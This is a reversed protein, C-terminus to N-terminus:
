RMVGTKVMMTEIRETQPFRFRIKWIYPGCGVKRGIKDRMNWVLYSFRGKSEDSAREHNELEGHYGFSQMFRTVYSGSQDFIFVDAVYPSTAAVRVAALTDPLPIAVGPDTGHPASNPNSVVLIEGDTWGVPPIWYLQGDYGDGAIAPYPTLSHVLVSGNSGELVVGGVGPANGSSDVYAVSSDLRVCNGVLPSNGGIVLTWELGNASVTPQAQVDLPWDEGEACSSSVRFLKKWEGRPASTELNLPESLRLRLTDPIVRQSELEAGDPVVGPSKVAKVVVAGVGDKLPVRQGAFHADNPLLVYPSAGTDPATLGYPFPEALDAEIWTSDAMFRVDGKPVIRSNAPLVNNWYVSDLGSPLASPKRALQLRVRDARGDRDHDLIQAALAPVFAGRFVVSDRVSASKEGPLFLRVSARSYEQTPDIRSQLFRDSRSVSASVFDFSTSAFFENSYPATEITAVKLTDGTDARLVVWVTDIHDLTPSVTHVRVGFAASTVQSVSDLELSDRLNVFRYAFPVQDAFAVSDRVQLGTVPDSYRAYLLDAPACAMRGDNSYAVREGKPFFQELRYRGEAVEVMRVNEELDGSNRCALTVLVTDVLASYDQAQLELGVLRTSRVVGRTSDEGAFIILSDPEDPRSVILTKQIPAQRSGNAEIGPVGAVVTTVFRVGVLGDSALPNKQEALQFSGLWVGTDGVGPQLQLTVNELDSWKNGVGDVSQATLKLTVTPLLGRVRDDRLRVGILAGPDFWHDGTIVQGQADLLELAGAIQPGGDYVVKAIVVEGDIPDQYSAVLTDGTWIDFAWAFRLEGGTPVMTVDFSHPARSALGPRQEVHFGYITNPRALQDSFALRASDMSAGYHSVTAGQADTWRLTALQTRPRVVLTDKAQEPHGATTSWSAVLTDWMVTALKGDTLAVAGQFVLPFGNGSLYNWYGALSDRNLNLTESDGTQLSAVTLSTATLDINASILGMGMTQAVPDTRLEKGLVKGSGDLFALTAAPWTMHYDAVLTDSPLWDPHTSFVKVTLDADTRFPATYVASATTPQSGDLTYYLTAGAVGADLSITLMGQYNGAGPTAVPTPLYPIPILNWRFPESNKYYQRTGVVVLQTAQHMCVTDGADVWAAVSTDPLTGNRTYYLRSGVTADNLQVCLSDQFSTDLYQLSSKKIGTPTAVQPAPHLRLRLTDSPLYDPATAVAVLEVDTRVVTQLGSVQWNAVTTDVDSGDWNLFIKVMGIGPNVDSPSRLTFWLSDVFVTDPFDVWDIREVVPTALQTVPRYIFTQVPSSTLGVGVAFMRIMTSDTFTMDSGSAISPSALTPTSGDLTYHLVVPQALTVTDSWSRFRVQASGLFITDSYPQLDLRTAFPALAPPNNDCTAVTEFGISPNRASAGTNDIARIYYDVDSNQFLEKPLTAVWTKNDASPNSMTDTSYFLDNSKRYFMVAQFTGDADQIDAVVEADGATTDACLMPSWLIVPVLNGVPITYPESGPSPVLPTKGVMGNDDVAVMYFDFGPHLVKAAPLTFQWLTDNIQTMAQETFSTNAISSARWFLKVADVSGDDSAYVGLTIATGAPQSVGVKLTTPTDLRIVPPLNDESWYATDASNNKLFNTQLVVQHEDGSFTVDPSRYCVMYRAQVESRIQAYLSALSAASAAYSYYGGTGEALDKLPSLTQDVVGISYITTNSQNALGVVQSVTAPDDNDAGDSFVILSTPNTEGGLQQLGVLTGQNINTSNGTAALLNTAALLAQKDSTMVSRVSTNNGGTFGVIATRDLPGMSNIYDRISQKAETMKTGSMSGSEDVVLVVSVGGVQQVTTVQLDVTDGDQTVVFNSTDLGIMSRGTVADTISAMVCVDPHNTINVESIKVEPRALSDLEYIAKLTCSDQGMRIRTTANNAASLTASGALIQWEKFRFGGWPLAIAATDTGPLLGFSGEPFVRGQSSSQVRLLPAKRVRMQLNWNATDGSYYASKIFVPKGSDAHFLIRTSDVASKSSYQSAFLSDQGYYGLSINHGAPGQYDFYFWGSDIPNWKYRIGATMPDAYYDLNHNFTKWVTDLVMVAATRFHATIKAGSTPIAFTSYRDPYTVTAVGSDVSWYDFRYGTGGQASIPYPVGTWATPYGASPSVTGNGASVLTLKQTTQAWNITFPKLSDSSSYHNVLYYFKDGAAAANVTYTKVGSGYQSNTYSYFTADSAYNYFYTYQASSTAITYSGAAPATFVFRVGSGSYQNYYNRATSYSVATQTIPYVEGPVFWAKLRCDDVIGLAVTTPSQADRLTCSGSEVTWHDFRFNTGPLSRVWASDGQMITDLALTGSNIRVTGTGATDLKLERGPLVQISVSDKYYSSSYPYLMYYNTSGATMPPLEQVMTGYQYWYNVLTSFTADSGYSYLYRSYNSTPHVTRVFYTGAAPATFSLRVGNGPNYQFYHQTFNFTKLTADIPWVTGPSYKPKLTAQASTPTFTTTVAMTDTITGTGSQLHWGDFRYGASLSATITVPEGRPVTDLVISTSGIGASGGTSSIVNVISSALAQVQLQGNWYSLSYPKALYYWDMNPASPSYQRLLPSSFYLGTPSGSFASNQGHEYFYSTASSSNAAGIRIFFPEASTNKYHYRMGEGPNNQYMDQVYSNIKPTSTIEILQGAKCDLVIAANGAVSARGSYSLSDIWKVTGSTVSWGNPRWGTSGTTSLNFPFNPVVTISSPSATCQSANSSVTVNATQAARIHFFQNISTASSSPLVKFYYSNGSTCPFIYSLSDYGSVGSGATTFNPDSGYPTLVKYYSSTSDGTVLACQGSQTATYKFWVGQSPSQSYYHTNYNYYTKTTTIDYVTGPIFQAQVEGAVLGTGVTLVSQILTPYTLTFDGAIKVWKDLRYGVAPQATLLIATGAIGATDSLPNTTGSGTKSVAILGLSRAKINFSQITDANSSAKGIFWFEQNAATAKVVYSLTGYGYKYTTYSSFGASGYQYLYKYVSTVTDRMMIEYYGAAPAKFSMRVGSIASTTYHRNFTYMSDVVDIKHVAYPAFNAQIVVDSAPILSIAQQYKDFPSTTGTVLSWDMFTYGTEPTATLTAGTQNNVQSTGTPTTAGGTGAQVTVNYIQPTFLQIKDFLMGKDPAYDNGCQILKFFVKPGYSLGKATFASDLNFSYQTYSSGRGSNYSLDVLSYWTVSDLSVAIGEASVTGTFPATPMGYQVYGYHKFYFSLLVNSRGQLDVGFVAENVGQYYYSSRDM